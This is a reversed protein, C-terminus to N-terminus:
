QPRQSTGRLRNACSGVIELRSVECLRRQLRDVEPGKGYQQVIIYVQDMFEPVDVFQMSQGPVPYAGIVQQEIHRKRAFVEMRVTYTGHIEFELFDDVLLQDLDEPLVLDGMIVAFDHALRHLDNQIILARM